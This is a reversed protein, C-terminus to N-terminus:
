MGTVTVQVGSSLTSNSGDVNTASCQYTGQDLLTVSTVSLTSQTTGSVRVGDTLITGDKIWQYSTITYGYSVACM